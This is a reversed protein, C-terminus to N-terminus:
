QVFERGLAHTLDKGDEFIKKRSSYFEVEQDPMEFDQLVQNWLLGGIEHGMVIDGLGQM